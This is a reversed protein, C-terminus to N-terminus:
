SKAAKPAAAGPKKPDVLPLNGVPFGTLTFQVLQQNQITADNTNMIRVDRLRDEAGLKLLYETVADPTLATGRVTMPKGRELTIGTLWIGKPADNTVVKLVDLLGQPPQFGRAVTQQTPLYRQIQRQLQSYEKQSGALISKEQAKAADVKAAAQYRDWFVFGTMVVAAFLGVAAINRQSRIARAVREEIVSMLEINMPPHRLDIGAAAKLSSLATSYAAQLKSGGAAVSPACPLGAAACTRAVESDIDGAPIASRSYRVIGNSVLDITLGGATEEVIAADHLGVKTAILPAVLGAPLTAKITVGAAKAQANLSHLYPNLVAGILTLRGEQTVDGTQIVDYALENSPLPVLGPLTNKILLQLDRGGVNPLRATRVFSARRSLLVIASGGTKGSVADVISSGTRTEGSGPWFARVEEPSWEIVIDPVSIQSM